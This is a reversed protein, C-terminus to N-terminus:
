ANLTGVRKPADGSGQQRLAKHLFTGRLMHHAVIASAHTTANEVSGM